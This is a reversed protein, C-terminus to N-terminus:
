GKRKLDLWLALDAGLFLAVALSDIAQPVIATILTHLHSLQDADAVQGFFLRPDGMATGVALYVLMRAFSAAIAFFVFPVAVRFLVAFWRGTVLNRSSKLASTGREDDAMVHYPAFRFWILFILAPVFLMFFGGFVAISVLFSVWLLPFLRRLGHLFSKRISLTEGSLGRVTLDITTVYIALFALSSPISLVSFIMLRTIKDPVYTQLVVSITWQLLSLLMTWVVMEAYFQFNRRFNQWSVVIIDGPGILQSM